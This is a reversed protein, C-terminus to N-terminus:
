LEYPMGQEATILNLGLDNHSHLQDVIKKRIDIDARLDPKIHTIIVNLGSLADLPNQKDVLTALKHFAHMLWKPTLHSFLQDDPREDPYSAEIFIGHLTKTKILPAIRKWLDLTTSRKEVEDPGTDGMYLIFAGDSEILFATSDTFQGHALPYAKAKMSTEAIVFSKGPEMIVYNYQGLLPPTGSNTFNPWVRWNFLLTEIDEITGKLSLIPKPTDNPSIVVLGEVHDLYPHTILYAKIHHHLITGEETLGTNEILKIKSFCGKKNAAELGAFVSGADLCIFENSGTPALLHSSLNSEDLGGKVGLPIWTFKPKLAKM